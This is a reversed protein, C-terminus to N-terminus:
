AQDERAMRQELLECAIELARIRRKVLTIQAAYRRPEAKGELTVVTARLKRMMSEMQRKAESLEDHQYAM